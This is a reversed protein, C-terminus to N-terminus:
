QKVTRRLGIRALAEDVEQLARQGFNWLGKGRIAARDPLELLQGVTEYDSDVLARYTRADLKLCEIGTDAGRELATLPSIGAALAVYYKRQRRLEEIQADILRVMHSYAEM